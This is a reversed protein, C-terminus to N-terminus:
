WWKCDSIDINRAIVDKTYLIVVYCQKLLSFCYVEEATM